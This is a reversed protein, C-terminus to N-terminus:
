FLSGEFRKCDLRIFNQICFLLHTQQQHCALKHLPNYDQQLKQYRKRDEEAYERSCLANSQLQQSIKNDRYLLYKKTYYSVDWVKDCNKDDAKGYPRKHSQCPINGSLNFVPVELGITEELILSLHM